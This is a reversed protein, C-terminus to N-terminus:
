YDYYIMTMMIVMMTIVTIITIKERIVTEDYVTVTMSLMKVAKAIKMKIM